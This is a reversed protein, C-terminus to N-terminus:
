WGYIQHMNFNKVEVIYEMIKHIFVDYSVYLDDDAGSLNQIINQFENQKMVEHLDLLWYLDMANHDTVKCENVDDNEKFIGEDKVRELLEDYLM